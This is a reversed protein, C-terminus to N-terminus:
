KVCQEGGKKFDTTLYVMDPKTGDFVRAIVTAQLAIENDDGFHVILIDGVQPIPRGDWNHWTKAYNGNCDNIIITM